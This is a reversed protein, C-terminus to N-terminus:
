EVLSFHISQFTVTILHYLLLSVKETSAKWHYKYPNKNAKIYLEQDSSWLGIETLCTKTKDLNHNDKLVLIM